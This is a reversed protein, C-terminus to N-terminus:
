GFIGGLLGGIAGGWGSGLDTGEGLTSGMQFGAGISGFSQQRRQNAMQQQQMGIGAANQNFNENMQFKDMENGINQQQIGTDFQALNMGQGMANNYQNRKMQENQLFMNSQADTLANSFNENVDSLAEGTMSSSLVGRENMQALQQSVGEDRQETLNTNIQNMYTDMEEDSMGLNDGQLQTSVNSLLDDYISPMEVQTNGEYPNFQYQPQSSGGGGDDGFLGGILSSGVSGLISGLM